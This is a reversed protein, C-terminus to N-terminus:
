GGALHRLIAMTLIQEGGELPADLQNAQLSLGNVLVAYEGRLKEDCVLLSHLSGGEHTEISKLLDRITAGEFAVNRQSFGVQKRVAGLAIVHVETM